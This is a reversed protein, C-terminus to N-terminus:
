NLSENEEKPDASLEEYLDQIANSAIIFENLKLVTEDTIVGEHVINNKVSEALDSATNVYKILALKTKSESM